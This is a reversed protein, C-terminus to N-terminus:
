EGKTQLVDRYSIIAARETLNREIKGERMVILQDFVGFYFPDHTVVIVTKNKIKRLQSYFEQRFQPDCNAVPEDLLAVQVAPDLIRYYISALLLRQHEGSSFNADESGICSDYKKSLSLIKDHIGALRAAKILRGGDIVGRDCGCIALDISIEPLFGAATMVVFHRRISDAKIDRVSIGDIQIDGRQPLYVKALLYFLTTKGSGNPGVLGVITGPIIRVSVDILAEKEIKADYCFGACLVDIVPPRYLTMDRSNSEDISPKTRLFEEVKGYDDLCIMLRRINHMFGGSTEAFARISAIIIGFETLTFDDSWMDYCLYGVFLTIGCLQLAIEGIDKHLGRVSRQQKFECVEEVLATANKQFYLGHNRLEIDRNKEPDLLLGVYEDRMDEKKELEDYDIDEHFFNKLYMNDSSRMIREIYERGYKWGREVLVLVIAVWIFRPNHIFLVACGVVFGGISRVVDLQAELANYFIHERRENIYQWLGQFAPSKKAGYDLKAMHAIMEQYFEKGQLRRLTERLFYKIRHFVQMVGVSLIAGFISVVIGLRGKVDSSGINVGHHQFFNGALWFMAIEYVAGWLAFLFMAYFYYANFARLRGNIVSCRRAYDRFYEIKEIVKDRLAM